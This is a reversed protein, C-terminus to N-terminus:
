KFRYSLQLKKYAIRIMLWIRVRFSGSLSWDSDRSWRIMM